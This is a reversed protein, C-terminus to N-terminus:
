QELNKQFYKHGGKVKGVLQWEGDYYGIMKINGSEEDSTLINYDSGMGWYMFSKLDGGDVSIHIYGREIGENQNGDYQTPLTFRIRDIGQVIATFGSPDQLFNDARVQLSQGLGLLVLFMLLLRQKM